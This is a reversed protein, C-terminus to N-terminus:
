KKEREWATLTRGSGPTSTFDTPRDKGPAAFCLRYRNEKIEYIGLIANGKGNPTTPVADITKPSRTSDITFTGKGIARDFRYVTYENGKITRFLAQAEDDPLQQGDAIYSVAAWDGQMSALDQKGADQLFFLAAVVLVSSKM